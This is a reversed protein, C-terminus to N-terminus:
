RLAADRHRLGLWDGVGGDVEVRCIYGLGANLGGLSSEAVLGIELHDDVFGQAFGFLGCVM